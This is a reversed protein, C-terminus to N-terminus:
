ASTLRLCIRSLHRKMDKPVCPPSSPGELAELAAPRLANIAPASHADIDAANDRYLSIYQDISSM